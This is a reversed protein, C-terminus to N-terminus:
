TLVWSEQKWGLGLRLPRQSQVFQLDSGRMEFHLYVLESMTISCLGHFPLSQHSSQVSM